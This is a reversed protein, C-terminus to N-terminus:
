NFRPLYTPRRGSAASPQPLYTPLDAATESTSARTLSRLDPFFAVCPSVTVKCSPPTQQAMAYEAATEPHAMSGSPVTTRRPAEEKEAVRQLLAVDALSSHAAADPGAVETCM